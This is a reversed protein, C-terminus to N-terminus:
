RLWRLLMPYKQLLQPHHELFSAIRLSLANKQHGGSPPHYPVGLVGSTLPELTPTTTFEYIDGKGMAIGNFGVARYWYKTKASLNDIRTQFPGTHNMTQPSTSRNLDNPSKDSYVFWVNCTSTGSMSWLEGKLVAYNKGIEGPQRTVVVPQGPTVSLTLGSWEGADNKAVAKYFYTKNATLNTLNANFFGTATLNRHITSQDLVYQDTGYLFFVECSAAGGMHWLNGNITAQTLGINTANDSFVRPSGPIFTADPGIKILNKVKINEAFARYHYTTTRTLNKIDLSFLGFGTHNDAWVKYLYDNWNQHFETDWVFGENWNDPSESITLQGWIRVATGADNLHDWGFTKVTWPGVCGSLGTVAILMVALVIGVIGKKEMTEVRFVRIKM